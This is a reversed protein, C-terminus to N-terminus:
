AYKSVVDNLIRYVQEGAKQWSFKKVQEFGKAIMKQRLNEDTLIREMCDAMEM